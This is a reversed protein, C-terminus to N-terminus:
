TAHCGWRGGVAHGCMPHTPPRRRARAARPHRDRAKLPFVASFFGYLSSNLVATLRGTVPAGGTPSPFELEAATGTDVRSDAPSVDCKATRVKTPETGIVSRLVNVTYCGADMQNRGRARPAGCRFRRRLRLSRGFVGKSPGALTRAVACWQAVLSRM